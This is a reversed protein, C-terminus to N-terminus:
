KKIMKLNVSKIPKGWHRVPDKIKEFGISELYPLVKKNVLAIYIEEGNKVKESLFRDFQSKFIGKGRYQKDTYSGMLVHVGDEYSRYMVYGHENPDSMKGEVYKINEM